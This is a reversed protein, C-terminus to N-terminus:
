GGPGQVRQELEFSLQQFCDTFVRRRHFVRSYCLMLGAQSLLRRDFCETKLLWPDDVETTREIPQENKRGGNKHLGLSLRAVYQEIRVPVDLQRVHPPHRLKRLPGTQLRGLHSVAVFLRRDANSSAVPQPHSRFCRLTRYSLVIRRDVYICAKLRM